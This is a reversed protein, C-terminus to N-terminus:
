SHGELQSTCFACRKAQHDITSFCFPCKKIAPEITKVEEKKQLSKIFQVLLFISFAIILFSIVTNIFLGLNLTVAGAKQAQDVTNFPGPQSGYKLVIFYNSFDVNGLLLGIPPMIIDKVLSQVISGFAAGIIIGVALDIVNGKLAFAKFENMM